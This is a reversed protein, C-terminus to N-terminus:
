QYLKGNDAMIPDLILPLQKRSLWELLKQGDRTTTFYGIFIGDFKIRKNDWDTLFVDLISSTTHKVPNQGGGTHSSLLCTPLLVQELLCSAMLPISASLAVKGVGVLDNAVVIRKM